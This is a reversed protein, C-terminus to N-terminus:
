KKSRSKPRLCFYGHIPILLLLPLVQLKFRVATGLNQSSLFSYFIGWVLLTLAAYQFFADSFYNRRWSSILFLFAFLIALNEVGALTGFINRVELPLPRFLATFIGGPLFIALDATSNFEPVAQGSGGRSWSRSVQNVGTLWEDATFQNVSEQLTASYFQLCAIAAASVLLKVRLSTQSRWFFVITFPVLFIFVLWLRVTALIYLGSCASALYHWRWNKLIGMTGYFFLAIGLYTIPDKGLISSWFLLSPFAMLIWLIGVHSEGTFNTYGRYFLYSGLFGFFSWLVKLAHYSAMFPLHQAMLKAFHSIAETGAFYDHNLTASGKSVAHTFYSYADLGYNYEYYLMFGLTVVCRLGWLLLLSIREKPRCPILFVAFFLITAWFVGRFYDSAVDATPINRGLVDINAILLCLFAGFIASFAAAILWDKKRPFKTWTSIPM